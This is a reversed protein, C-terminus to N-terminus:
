CEIDYNRTEKDASPALFTEKSQNDGSLPHPLRVIANVPLNTYMAWWQMKSRSLEKSRLTSIFPNHNSCEIDYNRTQKDPSPPLFTEQGQSDGSWPHALRVIVNVLVNAYIYITAVWASPCMIYIYIYVYIYVYIYICMIYIYIHDHFCHVRETIVVIVKHCNKCNPVYHVTVCQQYCHVLHTWCAFSPVNMLVLLTDSCWIQGLVHNEVFFNYHHGPSCM